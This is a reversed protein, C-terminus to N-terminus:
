LNHFISLNVILSQHLPSTLLNFINNLYKSINIIKKGTLAKAKISTSIVLPLRLGSGIATDGKDISSLDLSLKLLINFFLSMPESIEITTSFM